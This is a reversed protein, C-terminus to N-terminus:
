FVDLDPTGDCSVTPRLLFSPAVSTLNLVSNTLDLRPSASLGGPVRPTRRLYRSPSPKKRVGKSKSYLLCLKLRRMGSRRHCFLYETSKPSSLCESKFFKYNPFSQEIDPRVKLEQRYYKKLHTELITIKNEYKEETIAIQTELTESQVFRCCSLM